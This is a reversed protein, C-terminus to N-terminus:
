NWDGSAVFGAWYVPHVSEGNERRQQLTHLSAEHVAEATSLDRVLRAEYLEEMWQRTSDDDVPWLSMIVTRAGAIRFARRLGLVGEGAEIQGVATDCASLVAWEVGRLDMAAIEEATLIGDESDPGADDRLNAGALVLGSLLLPNEAAAPPPSEELPSGSVGAVGRTRDLVSSCRGGLFFGHTALHLIRRGPAGMKFAAESAGDSTLLIPAGGAPVGPTAKEWLEVIHRTEDVTAPLEEFRVERLDGCASRNGRFIQPRDSPESSPRAVNDFAPGGLALLGIGPPSPEKEPALDREASLYHILPGSEILFKSDGVPLAAFSVLQLAGDPVIFVREVDDLRSAVPDWIARRLREGATRDDGRRRSEGDQWHLLLDETWRSVLGDIQEAEGLPVAAPESEGSALVFALYSPVAPSPDDRVPGAAETTAQRDYVAYAILASSPPLSTALERLGIAMRDRERRFAASREALAQEAQEKDRVANEVLEGYTAADEPLDPRPGRLTLNALRRSAAALEALLQEAVPDTEDGIWRRRAAMEDLVLARSRSLADWVKRCAKGDLGEAALSLGLDLGSTRVSGYGLAQREPLTRITLRLHRRGIEEARLSAELAEANLGRRTLALGRGNLTEAVQPHHPGLAQERIGIAEDFRLQASTPDGTLLAVRGLDYVNQAVAPHEPGVAEKQIQLAKDFMQTAREYELMRVLVGGLGNLSHAFFYDEGLLSEWIDLANQYHEQAGDLDGTDALLAGLRHHSMAVSDAGAPLMRTRIELGKEFAQRAGAYDGTRHLLSGLNTLTIAVDEDLAERQKIELAREFLRRAEAYEGLEMLLNAKNNQCWAFYIHEDSFASEFSECAREYNILAEDYNGTQEQLIALGNLTWALDVPTSTRQKIEIAREFLVAAEEYEGTEKKLLALNSLSLAILPDDAPLARQRIALAREYLEEAEDYRQLRHSYLSALDNLSVAIEPDDRDLHREKIKIIRKYLSEAEDRNETEEFVIALNRLSAAMELHRRDVHAQKIAVAREALERTEPAHARRDRWLSEVLADLVKAAALSDAGEAAEVTALLERARKEAEAYQDQAILERVEAVGEPDPLLTVPENCAVGAAALAVVLLSM